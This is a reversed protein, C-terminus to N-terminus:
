RKLIFSLIGTILGGVSATAIIWYTKMLWEVNAEIKAIRSSIEGFERNLIEIHETNSEICKRQWEDM